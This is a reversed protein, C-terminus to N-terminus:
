AFFLVLIRCSFCITRQVFNFCCFDDYSNGSDCSYFARCECQYWVVYLM